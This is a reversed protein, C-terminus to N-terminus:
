LGLLRDFLHARWLSRLGLAWAVALGALAVYDSWALASLEFFGRLPAIALVAVYAIALAAALLTPRWDGSLVDGGVWFSTPPEAFPILLLGCFVTFSTLASQARELGQAALRIDLGTRGAAFYYLYVGLGALTLTLAAPLVFHQLSRTQEKQQAVGPRAWAALAITPLGVTFLTLLTNHKPAFPFGGVIGASLILLAAYLVRTMFLKLIDQMGNVIRQGEKFAQPLAAFSDDLLVIDAVGRTAQSGSQLAVGLNARKLSLVDNVGDGIMAVYHGQAQLAHVLEDKQQPTVRGFITTSEAAQAFAAPDMAALEPGSVLGIESGLGAQRALAAVTSPNDGSIIKLAIGAEAFSRLTEQAQPRLADALAVWGLPILGNPPRTEEAQLAEAGPQSCFLLVRLGKALWEEVLGSSAASAQPALADLLVEPAGLVYVGSREIGSLALGSWKRASSFPVAGRVPQARGPCAKAIAAITRNPTPTSAAFDGLTRRLEDESGTIPQLTQLCLQNATLTGTKDLCLVDVNSLSEVANAQQVLAGRGAMRVAGMAYAATIALFLGNPVLGAVVVAMRVSEVLPVHRLWADIGLLLSLYVVVLLLVRVILNIQRQLPTHIRRFIRAGTTIQHALSEAGVKQAVYLGSGTVCYSGSYVPNVPRKPILDSEGTLLSEDTEMRSDDSGAMQGDVVIQDGPGVRLLDGVVIQRPDVTQEQGDRIVTAQPRTLLAIRDLTRRARVEQIVGVLTNGLVVGVSVLADSLRGLLVLAIGLAFIVDNIFTFVNERLIRAYSRSTQLPVDNGLGQARRAEVDASSLGDMPAHNETRLTADSM